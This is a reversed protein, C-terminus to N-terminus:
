LKYLRSNWKNNMANSQFSLGNTIANLLIDMKFIREKFPFWLHTKEIIVHFNDMM